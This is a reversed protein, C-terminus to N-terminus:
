DQIEYKTAWYGKLNQNGFTFADSIEYGKSPTTKSTPINNINIYKTLDTTRYQYRPIYTCYTTQNINITVINAYIKNKYDYWTGTQPIIGNGNADKQINGGIRENTGNADYLVYYTNTPNFGSVDVEIANPMLYVNGLMTRSTLSVVCVNYETGKTLGTMKISHYEDNSNIIEVNGEKYGSFTIVQIEGVLSINFEDLNRYTEFRKVAIGGQIILILIAIILAIGLLLIRLKKNDFINISIIVILVFCFIGSLLHHPFNTTASNLYSLGQFVLVIIMPSLILVSLINKKKIYYGIFGMPFCAITWCFWYRYYGFLQWGLSSFPVQILYILPQSILFFVFCKFASDLPSKSNCIIIIGFLIWWDLYVAIDRFSTNATIPLLAMIATYVGALIAFIILKKWTLDIGGFLKKM